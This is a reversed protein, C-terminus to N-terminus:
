YTIFSLQEKVCDEYDKEINSKDRMINPKIEEMRKDNMLIYMPIENYGDIKELMEPTSFYSLLIIKCAGELKAKEICKNIKKVTAEKLIAYHFIIAIKSNDFSKIEKRWAPVLDFMNRGLKESKILPALLKQTLYNLLIRTNLKVISRKAIKKIM